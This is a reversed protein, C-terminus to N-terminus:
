QARVFTQVYAVSNRPGNVRVTIRFHTASTPPFPNPANRNIGGTQANPDGQTQACLGGTNPCLRHIVYTIRNGARDVSTGGPSFINCATDTNSPGNCSLGAAWGPNAPDLYWDPREGLPTFGIFGNTPDNASQAALVVRNPLIYAYAAQIGQDAANIASQRFGINGAVLTATDVSRMMAIGAMTLAVLVVLAILLAAGRERPPFPSQARAKM